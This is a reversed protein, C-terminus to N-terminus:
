AGQGVVPARTLRRLLALGSQVSRFWFVYGGLLALFGAFLWSEAAGLRWALTGGAATLLAFAGLLTASGRVSFGADLLLHHLHDRGPTAASVGRLRRRLIVGAADLLPLALLYLALVGPMAGHVALSILLFALNFGIVTSGADGMFTHAHQVWPFRFNFALFVGMGALLCLALDREFVLGAKHAISAILALPVVTLVGLLGDIGDVMNMANIGASVAFLTVPVALLGLELVGFGTIDGLHQLVLGAPVLFLGALLHLLFRLRSGLNSIDDLWGLLFLMLTGFGWVDRLVPDVPLFAMPLLAAVLAIGGVVPTQRAHQKRGGPQDMLGLAPALRIGAMIVILSLAVSLSCTLFVNM